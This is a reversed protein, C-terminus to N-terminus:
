GNPNVLLVQGNADMRGLILSVQEGTVRNLIASRVSPQAFRVQEDANIGFSRWDIIARSTNQQILTTSGQGIIQASGARVVGGEPAAHAAAVFGILLLLALVSYFTFSFGRSYSFGSMSQRTKM